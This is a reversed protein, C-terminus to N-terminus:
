LNDKLNRIQVDAEVYYDNPARQPTVNIKLSMHILRIATKHGPPDAILNNDTDYYTFIPETQNNIYRAIESITEASANYEVPDGSPEIVGKKLVTNDLFYRIKEIRGDGDYDCYFSLEQPNVVDLLYDGTEAQYADRVEKSFYKIVQRAQQVASDQEFGFNTSRFGFIVFNAAVIIFLVFILVYVMTEMLTFGQNNQSVM